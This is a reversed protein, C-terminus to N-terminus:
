PYRLFTTQPLEIIPVSFIISPARTRWLSSLPLLHKLLLTLQEQGVLSGIRANEILQQSKVKTEFKTLALTDDAKIGKNIATSLAALGDAAQGLARAQGAGFVDADPNLNQFPTPTFQSQVTGVAQGRETPTPIRAM